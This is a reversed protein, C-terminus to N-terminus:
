LVMRENMPGYFTNQCRFCCWLKEVENRGNRAIRPIIKEFIGDRKIVNSILFHFSSFIECKVVM